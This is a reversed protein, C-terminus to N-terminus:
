RQALRPRLRWLLFDCGAASVLTGGSDFSGAAAATFALATTGACHAAFDQQAGSVTDVVHVLRDPTAVAALPPFVDLATAPGGVTFRKLVRKVRYHYVLLQDGCAVAITSPESTFKAVLFGSPCEFEATDELVPQNGGWTQEACRWVSLTAKGDATTCGMLFCQPDATCCHLCRVRAPSPSARLSLVPEVAPPAPIIRVFAADGGVVVASGGYAFCLCTVPGDSFVRCLRRQSHKVHYFAVCGDDFGSCLVDADAPHFSCATAASVPATPNDKNKRPKSSFLQTFHDFQWVRTTGDESTSVIRTGLYDFSIATVPAAHNSRALHLNACADSDEVQWVSGDATSAMGHALKDDWAMAIVGATDHLPLRRVPGLERDILGTSEDRPFVYIAGGDGSSVSAGGCAVVLSESSCCMEAIEAPQAQWWGGILRRDNVDWMSFMGNSCGAYLAGPHPSVLATVHTAQQERTSVEMVHLQLDAGLEWFLISGCSGTVFCCQSHIQHVFAVCHLVHECACATLLQGTQPNWVCVVSDECTGVSVLFQGNPAFCLAQVGAAHYCLVHLCAASTVDWLRIQGSGSADVRGAASAIVAGLRDCALASVEETHGLLLRQTGTKSNELVVVNGAAFVVLSLKPRWLFLGKPAQSYGHISYLSLVETGPPAIHRREPLPANKLIPRYHRAPLSQSAVAPVPVRNPLRLDLLRVFSPQLQEHEGGLEAAQQIATVKKSVQEADVPSPPEPPPEQHPLIEEEPPEQFYDTSGLFNWVRTANGSITVLMQGDGTFATELVPFCLSGGLQQPHETWDKNLFIRIVNNGSEECAVALYQSNPSVCFSSCSPAAISSPSLEGTSLNFKLLEDGFRCLLETCDPSFQLASVFLSPGLTDARGLASALATPTTTSVPPMSPTTTAPPVRLRALETLSHTDAIVVCATEHQAVYAVRKGDSSLAMGCSARPIVATVLMDAPQYHNSEDYVVIFGDAAYSFLRAPQHPAGACYAVQTVAAKHQKCQDITTTNEIDLVRIFGSDFGCAIVRQKSPHYCVSCAFDATVDFQFLQKCSDLDWVRIARDRSVTTAEHTSPEIAVAYVLNTHSRMLVNQHSYGPIDVVAIQGTDTGSVARVGDCSLDTAIVSGENRAELSFNKFDLPWVRLLNNCSGTACYGRWVSLSNIPGTDLDFVYELALTAANVQLVSGNDASVFVRRRSESFGVSDMEFAIDTFNHHSHEGLAVAAVHLADGKLRWFRINDRGCSVMRHVEYPSIKMCSINYDHTHTCLVNANGDKMSTSTNLVVVLNRGHPERGVACLLSGNAAVSLCRITRYQTEILSVMMGTDVNWLLITANPGDEASALLPTYASLSLVFVPLKHGQMCWQEGTAVNMKILSSDVPFVIHRCDGTWLINHGLEGSYGITKHLRVIPCPHLSARGTIGRPNASSPRGATSQRQLSASLSGQTGLSM